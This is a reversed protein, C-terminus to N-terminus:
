LRHADDCLPFLADGTSCSLKDGDYDAWAISPDGRTPVVVRLKVASGDAPSFDQISVDTAFNGIRVGAGAKIFMSEDCVLTACHDPDQSCAGTDQRGCTGITPSAAWPAIAAQVAGIDIVSITGSDYRLESNANAVFLVGAKASVAMGTPFFLQDRPPRVDEASATCAAIAACGLACSVCASVATRMPHRNSWRPHRPTAQM